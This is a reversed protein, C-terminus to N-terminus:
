ERKWRGGGIWAWWDNKIIEMIGGNNKKKSGVVMKGRATEESVGRDGGGANGAAGSADNDWINWINWINWTGDDNDDDDDDDSGAGHSMRGNELM